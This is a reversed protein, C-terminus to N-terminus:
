ADYDVLLEENTPHARCTLVYGQHVEAADLAHNQDM